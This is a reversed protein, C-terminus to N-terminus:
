SGRFISSLQNFAYPLFLASGALFYIGVDKLKALDNGLFLEFLVWYGIGVFTSAVAIAGLAGAVRSFSGDSPSSPDTTKESLARSLLTRGAPGPKQLERSVLRLGWILVATVATIALWYTVTQTIM